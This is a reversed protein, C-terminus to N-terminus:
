RVELVENVRNQVELNWVSPDAVATMEGSLGATWSSDSVAGLNILVNLRASSYAATSILSATGVDTIASPNGISALKAALRVLRVPHVQCGLAIM